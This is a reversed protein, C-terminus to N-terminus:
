GSNTLLVQIHLLRGFEQQKLLDQDLRHYSNKSLDNELNLHIDQMEVFIDKQASPIFDEECAEQLWKMFVKTEPLLYTWELLQNEQQTLFPLM